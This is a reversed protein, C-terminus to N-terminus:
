FMIQLIPIALLSAPNITPMASPTTRTTCWAKVKKFGGNIICKAFLWETAIRHTNMRIKEVQTLPLSIQM